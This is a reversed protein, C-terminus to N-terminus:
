DKAALEVVGFWVMAVSAHHSMVVVYTSTMALHSPTNFQVAMATRLDIDGGQGLEAVDSSPMVKMFAEAIAPLSCHVLNQPPGTGNACVAADKKKEPNMDDAAVKRM